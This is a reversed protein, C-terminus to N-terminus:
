RLEVAVLPLGLVRRDPSGHRWPRLPATVLALRADGDGRLARPPVRACLVGDGDPELGLRRGNLFAALPVAGERLGGTELRLERGRATLPLNMMAIPGAWRFRAGNARERAHLGILRDEPLDVVAVRGVPPLPAARPGREALWRLRALTVM